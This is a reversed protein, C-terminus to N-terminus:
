KLKRITAPRTPKEREILWYGSSVGAFDIKVEEAEPIKVTTEGAGKVPTWAYLLVEKRDPHGILVYPTRCPLPLEVPITTGRMWYDRLVDHAPIADAAAITALVYDEHTATKLEPVGFRDLDAHDEPVFILGKRPTANNTWYRLNLPVGGQRARARWLLYQCFSTWRDPTLPEHKGARAGYLAGGRNISVWFERYAKPNHARTWEVTAHFLEEPNNVRNASTMDDKDNGRTVYASGGCADYCNPEHLGPGIADYVWQPETFGIDRGAGYASTYRNKWGAPSAAVFAEDYARYKKVSLDNFTLWFKYPDEEYGGNAVIWEDLRLNQQRIKEPPQWHRLPTKIDIWKHKDRVISNFRENCFSRWMHAENNDADEIWAPAPVVAQISKMYRSTARLRAEEEWVTTPGFVDALAADELSGDANLHMVVTSLPVNEMTKPLRHKPQQMATARNDDRICLPLRAAGLRRLAPVWKAEIPGNEQRAMAVKITALFWHKEAMAVQWDSNFGGDTPATMWVSAFPLGLQHVDRLDSLNDARCALSPAFALCAAAVLARGIDRIASPM